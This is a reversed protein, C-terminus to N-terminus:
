IFCFTCIDHRCCLFFIGYVSPPCPIASLIAWWFILNVIPVCSFGYPVPLMVLCLLLVSFDKFWLICNLCYICVPWWRNSGTYSPPLARDMWYFAGISDGFSHCSNYSVFSLFILGTSLAIMQRLLDIKLASQIWLCCAQGIWTVKKEWKM